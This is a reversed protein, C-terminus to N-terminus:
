KPLPVVSSCVKQGVAPQVSGPPPASDSQVPVNEPACYAVSCSGNGPVAYCATPAGKEVTQQNGSVCHGGPVPPIPIAVSVSPFYPFAKGPTKYSAIITPDGNPGVNCTSTVLNPKEKPPCLGLPDYFNTPNNAVYRYFNLGGAFKVLDESLFRGSSSDFYRTRYFNLGTEADFERATYQFPNIITGTSAALKGFSDYTYTNALGGTASFSSTISGLGDAAYYDTTSSQLEALPEDITVGLAYSASESGSGNATEVLDLGDYLYNMTSLRGSKSIRRGFPDHLLPM